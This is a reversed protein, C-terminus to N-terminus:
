AISAAISASIRAIGAVSAAISAAIRALGAVSAVGNCMKL